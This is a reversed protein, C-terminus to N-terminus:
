WGRLRGGYILSGILTAAIATACAWLIAVTRWGPEPTQSPYTTAPGPGRTLVTVSVLEGPHQAQAAAILDATAADIAEPKM